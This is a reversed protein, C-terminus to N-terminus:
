RTSGEKTCVPAGLLASANETRIWCKDERASAAKPAHNVSLNNPPVHQMAVVIKTFREQEPM